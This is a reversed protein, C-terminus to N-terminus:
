ARGLHEQSDHRSMHLDFTDRAAGSEASENGLAELLGAFKLETERLETLPDSDAVIGAGAFLRLSNGELLGSRLGVVFEGDGRSDFWGLPAAYWGREIGEHLRLFAKAEGEPVGAVAPTPHLQTVLDLIHPPGFLRARITTALHLVHRLQRISPRASAEPKAGLANLKRILEHVVLRHEHREKDSHMLREAADDDLARMSGAVAETRLESGLRLLLREPTAGLFVLGAKRFAFRTTQPSLAEFTELIRQASPAADLELVVERALVVKELEGRGIAALAMDVRRLWETPSPHLIRQRVRTSPITPDSGSLAAQLQGTQEIWHEREADTQLELPRVHLTISARQADRVYRFRPLDFAVRPFTRWPGRVDPAADFALGGYFRPARAAADLGITTAHELWGQAEMQLTPVDELHEARVSAVAGLGVDGGRDGTAFYYAPEDEQQAFVRGASVLPAPLTVAVIAADSACTASLITRLRVAMPGLTAAGETM